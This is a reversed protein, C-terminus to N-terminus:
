IGKAIMSDIDEVVKGVEQYEGMWCGHIIPGLRQSLIDPFNNKAYRSQIDEPNLEEYPKAGIVVEYLLSGLVFLASLFGASNDQIGKRLPMRYSAPYSTTTLSLSNGTNPNINHPLLQTSGDLLLHFDWARIAHGADLEKSFTQAINRAWLLFTTAPIAQAEVDGIYEGLTLTKESDKDSGQLLRAQCSLEEREM